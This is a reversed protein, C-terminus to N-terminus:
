VGDKKIFFVPLENILESKYEIDMENEIEIFPLVSYWVGGNKSGIEYVLTEPIVIGYYEWDKSLDKTFDVHNGESDVNWSWPQILKYNKHVIIGEVYGYGKGMKKGSVQYSQLQRNTNDIKGQYTVNCKNGVKMVKHTVIQQLIERVFSGTEPSVYGTVNDIITEKLEKYETNNSLVKLFL